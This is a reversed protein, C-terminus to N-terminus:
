NFECLGHYMKVEDYPEDIDDDDVEMNDEGDPNEQDPKKCEEIINTKITERITKREM